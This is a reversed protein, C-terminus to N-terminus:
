RGSESRGGVPTRTAGPLRQVLTLVPAFPDGDDELRRLVDDPGLLLAAEEGRAVISSLEDWAVPASVTPRERKARLSYPAVTSRHRDNQGWDVLVRGRRLRKDARAVVREPLRQAMVEAVSRAFAKTAAFGVPSNLPVYVQVGASGSSKAWSELGVGRLMDRVLLAIQAADLIGAPPGPDLDFVLATPTDFDPAVSLLPHMELNGHNVSWLLSARDELRCFTIDEGKRESWVPALEVWPPAGRCHKDYFHPGAVGDPYRKLTMPRGALYPLLAPAVRAYYDLAEGKTFGAEPYLVKDLNTLRLRRGDLRADVTGGGAAPPPPDVLGKFSAHRVM